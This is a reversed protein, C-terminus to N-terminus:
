AELEAITKEILQVAESFTASDFALRAGALEFLEPLRRTAGVSLARRYDSLAKQPDKLSNAWVQVAGLQALGYEIYYFPLQFIHLQRRWRFKIADEFGSYDVGPTFREWLEMWKADCNAADTAEEHHTYIWHQFADVQAIYAWLRVMRSLHEIRARKADEESYYGGQDKSLYPSAILEMSMSAVEAFEMPLTSFGRQQHYPLGASEFVHFAHGAEHLLTQVDDHLGVANMFIFPRQAVPFGTCYGGPSKGKRNDLDLLKEDSMTKFYGGLQPDVKNFIAEATSILEDVGDYPRLPDRGLPDVMLDWPRLSEVGLQAKLSENLRKVAPVVAEEIARHFTEADEPTYDLRLKERWVYERYDSCGANAAIQKRIDMFKKWLEDLAPVDQLQRELTTRFAKERRDRDQDQYVPTLQTLTVEEGEWEVTQAGIIKDYETGLRNSEAQLAVNEPRFLAVQERIYALPTEFGEPELGSDILRRNLQDELPSIHPYIKELFTNFRAEADKDTTDVSRAVHIRSFVEDLLDALASWDTLWAGLTDASLERQILDEAFPAYQPWDWDMVGDIQKPLTAFM